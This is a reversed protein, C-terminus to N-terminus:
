AAEEKFLADIETDDLTEKELLCATVELLKDINETLIDYARDYLRGLLARCEEEASRAHGCVSSLARLSVAPEGGMGLDMLMTGALEAARSLDGSAGSTLADDGGILLEAARGALLVAIQSEVDAKKLLVKDQPIALNYGAAGRAASLISIRKLKNNPLLKKMVVAHGAEHLAVACRDDADAPFSGDEGAITRYFAKDIDSKEIAGSAREAAIIAAENLLSELSAGSFSCTEGALKELDVNDAIPKNRSHLRLIDYREAKDPLGVEIKRDFRGPRLLAPDLAELRNTAAVVIIGEGSNFGSMESLLANLTQDREESVADNRRRGLADIEDIFIVSKGARRANSFLERVRNAGVGVYMQVFDSGSLAFFPVGAEGALAKALLTKGTGPPGYLVVGKPMRAGYKKYKEPEKIYDALGLLSNKAANNAAVDGFTITNEKNALMKKGFGSYAHSFKKKKGIVLLIGILMVALIIAIGSINRM